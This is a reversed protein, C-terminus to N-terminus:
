RGDRRRRRDSRDRGYRSRNEPGYVLLGMVPILLFWLWTGTTFFLALAVFPTLAMVTSRYRAPVFAALPGEGLQAAGRGPAAPLQSGTPVLGPMGVPHPQPLDSFLPQVDGWTRAQSAKVQRDEYEQSNLRGSSRHADLASIVGQREPDGIRQGPSGSGIPTVQEDDSM